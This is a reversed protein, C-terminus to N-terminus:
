FKLFTNTWIGILIQECDLISKKLDWFPIKDFKNETQPSEFSGRLMM